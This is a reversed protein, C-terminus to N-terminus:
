HWQQVEVLRFLERDMDTLISGILEQQTFYLITDFANDLCFDNTLTM